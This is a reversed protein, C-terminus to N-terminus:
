RPSRDSRSPTALRPASTASKQMSQLVGLAAEAQRVPVFLHDHHFASVANCAIGRQALAAAVAALFGVAELSSSVTLTIQRFPGGFPLGAAVAREVSCIATVGESEAFTGVPVLQQAAEMSPVAVFAFEGPLLAPAATCLLTSLDTEGSM